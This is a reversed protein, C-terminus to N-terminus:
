SATGSSFRQATKWGINPSQWVFTISTTMVFCCIFAHHSLQITIKWHFTVTYRAWCDLLRSWYVWGSVVLTWLYHLNLMKNISWGDMYITDGVHSCSEKSYTNINLKDGIWIRNNKICSFNLLCKFIMQILQEQMLEVKVYLRHQSFICSSGVWSTSYCM